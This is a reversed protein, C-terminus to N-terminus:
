RGARAERLAAQLKAADTNTTDLARSRRVAAEAGVLDGQKLRALALQFHGVALGPDRAIAREFLPIAEAAKGERLLSTALNLYGLPATPDIMIARRYAAVAGTLDGQRELAIGLNVHAIPQAADGTISRQYAQVAEPLADAAAYALGLNLLVAADGPAVELAKRYAAIAKPLEGAARDADGIGGLVIVWRRRLAIDDAPNRQLQARLFRRTERDHGRAYHLSALALARVDLDASTAMARMSRDFTGPVSAMDPAAFRDLWEAMGAVQATANRSEPHLLRPTAADIDTVGRADLLGAVAQEHPKLVGWWQAVQADLQPESQQAHCSKCASTIGLSSDLAPRPIAISHDSRAYRIARGLEHEQQYPMHCSVCRSGASAVTHRTHASVDIAKSAHCSTCQRDDTRGPIPEGDATRYHQSHPDHCSTCTMGGNRYCDSALHGEQYAFTRVRGDPTLPRDGLQSLRISYYQALPVGPAWHSSLRAKLAHCSLCVALSQEKDLTGLAVLGIDASKAPGASMLAVHRSAPGHCSECNITLGNSRTNWRKATTDFALDIQSGHCSQCNSFRPEDGLVRTPPWDGCDALRMSATIPQWGADTRTGTNCFWTRSHRSWDFPLFRMTGDSWRTVFGQTGGGEMHGGGIVADVTLTTDREGPRQVVFTFAGDQQRPIVTADRFRIPTGTFPAIVRMTRTTGGANGHTSAQWATFQEAHCAQCRASGAFEQAAPPAPPPALAVATLLTEDALSSADSRTRAWWVSAGAVVLLMTAAGIWRARAAVIRWRRAVM